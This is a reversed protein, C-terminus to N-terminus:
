ACRKVETRVDGVPGSGGGMETEGEREGERELEQGTTKMSACDDV